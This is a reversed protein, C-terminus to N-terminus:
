FRLCFYVQHGCGLAMDNTNTLCIPCLQMILILILYYYSSIAKRKMIIIITYFSVNKHNTSRSISESILLQSTQGYVRSFPVLELAKSTNYSSSSAQPIPPPLAARWSSMGIRSSCIWFFFFFFWTWFIVLPM